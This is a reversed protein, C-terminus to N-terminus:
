RQRRASRRSRAGRDAAQRVGAQDARRHLCVRHRAAGDSVARARDAPRVRTQRAGGPLESQAFVLVHRGRRSKQARGRLHLHRRRPPDQVSGTRGAGALQAATLGELQDIPVNSGNSSNLETLRLHVVGEKETPRLEWTGPLNEQATQIAEAATRLASQAGDRLDTLVRALPVPPSAPPKPSAPANAKRLPPRRMVSPRRPAPSAWSCHRRSSCGPPACALRRFTRNRGDDLAALMRSELQQPRAMSVAM